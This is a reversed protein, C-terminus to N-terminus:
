FHDRVISRFPFVEPKGVREARKGGCASEIARLTSGIDCLFRTQGGLGKNCGASYIRDENTVYFKIDTQQLYLSIISLKRFDFEKSIGLVVAKVHPDVKFGKFEQISMSGNTENEFTELNTFGHEILENEVGKPSLVLLKSSKDSIDNSLEHALM